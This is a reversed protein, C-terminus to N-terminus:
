IQCNCKFFQTFCKFRGLVYVNEYLFLCTRILTELELECFECSPFDVKKFQVQYSPFLVKMYHSRNFIKYVTKKEEIRLNFDPPPASTPYMDKLM